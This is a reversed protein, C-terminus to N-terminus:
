QSKYQVCLVINKGGNLLYFLYSNENQPDCNSIGRYVKYGDYKGDSLVFFNEKSDYIRIWAGSYFSNDFSTSIKMVNTDMFSESLIKFKKFKEQNTDPEGSILSKVQITEGGVITRSNLFSIFSQTLAFDNRLGPVVNEKNDGGMFNKVSGYGFVIFLFIGAIFVVLFTAAIWAWLDDEGGKKNM